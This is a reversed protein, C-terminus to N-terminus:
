AQGRAAISARVFEATVSVMIEDDVDDFAGRLVAGVREVAEAPASGLALLTAAALQGIGVHRTAVLTVQEGGALADAAHQGARSLVACLGRPNSASCDFMAARALGLRLVVALGFVSRDGEMDEEALMFVVRGPQAELLDLSLRFPCQEVVLQLPRRGAVMLNAIATFSIPSV